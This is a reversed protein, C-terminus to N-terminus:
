LERHTLRIDVSPFFVRLHEALKETMFVSRHRGGTCGFSITLSTFQRKLYAEVQRDVIERVNEWLEQVNPSRELFEAVPDERGTM